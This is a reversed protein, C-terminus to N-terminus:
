RSRSFRWSLISDAGLVVVALLLLVLSLTHDARKDSGALGRDDASSFRVRESLRERRTADLPTLDSERGSANVAWVTENVLWSGRRDFRVWEADQAEASAEIAEARSGFPRGSAEITQSSDARERALGVVRYVLPVFLGPKLPLDSGRVDAKTTLLTVLGAEVVRDLLLPTGDELRWVIRADEFPQCGAHLRIALAPLLSAESPTPSLVHVSDAASAPVPPNREVSQALRGPLISEIGTVPTAAFVLLSGGDRVYQELRTAADPTLGRVDALIVLTQGVLPEVELRTADITRLRISEGSAEVARAIFFTSTADGVLLVSLEPRIEFAYRAVDDAPLADATLRARAVYRGPRPLRVTLEITRREDAALPELPHQITAVIQGRASADLLDITLAGGLEAAGGFQAVDVRFRAPRMPVLLGDAPRVAVVARNSVDNSPMLLATLPRGGPEVGEFTLAQDDGVFVVPSAGLSDIASAVLGSADTPEISKIADLAARSSLETLRRTPDSLPVVTWRTDAPMSSVVKGAQAQIWEFRTSLGEFRQTSATDDVVLTLHGAGSIAFGPGIVPRAMALAVLAVALCRLLLLILDDRRIRRRHKEVAQRLFRMAAWPKPAPPRRNLLHIAIPLAIGLLGGLMIANLWM